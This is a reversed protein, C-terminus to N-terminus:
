FLCIRVGVLEFDLFEHTDAIEERTVDVLIDAIHGVAIEFDLLRQRVVLLLLGLLNLIVHSGDNFNQVLILINIL